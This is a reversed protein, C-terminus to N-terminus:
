AFTDILNGSIGLRGNLGQLAQQTAQFLRGILGDDENRGLFVMKVDDGRLQLNGTLIRREVEVSQGRNRGESTQDFRIGYYGEGSRSDERLSASIASNIASRAGGVAIRVGDNFSGDDFLRNLQLALDEIADAIRYSRRKSIGGEAIEPDVRGEPINLAPFLGTGNSDIELVSEPDDAVISVVQTGTDFSATVGAGSANVRDIITELSDVSADIAIATGNILIDGSTVGAFDAVSDLALDTEADTGPTVAATDLKTAVTFNSTDNRIDITPLSGITDQTFEIRETAPNFTATVGAASANIRDIVTNITDSASVSITEGNIEFSGDVVDPATGFQFNPDDNRIGGLPNDPDVASGVGQFVDATALDNDVLVGGGLTFFLGNGLDFQQDPPDTARYNYSGIIAGLPDRVRIQLNNVGVIGGRRAEFTLAGSGNSGDYEGGLTLLATSGLSWNPGFPSFSNPSANIEEISELFAASEFLSLSLGPSSRADPLDLRFRKTSVNMADFVSELTRYLDILERRAQLLDERDDAAPAAARQAAV